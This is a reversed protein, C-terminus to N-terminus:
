KFITHTLKFSTYITFACCSMFAWSFSMPIYSEELNFTWMNKSYVCIHLVAKRKTLLLETKIKKLYENM